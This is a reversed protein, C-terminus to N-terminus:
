QNEELKREKEPIQGTGATLFQPYDRLIELLEQNEGHNKVCIRYFNTDLGRYNGCSRILIGHSLLFPSLCSEEPGAFDHFLLFNVRSDYVHFGMETLGQRLLEREKGVTERTRKLFDERGAWFTAEGAAQAPISVRWPQGMSEMRELLERNSSFGYGLRLGAMAFAKTPAKLVFLNPAKECCALCSNRDPEELFDLFCEDVVAMIGHTRCEWLIEEMTQGDIVNGVPNSPSCLFVMDPETQRLAERYSEASLAFNEEEKLFFFSLETGTRLLAAEYESFTPALLLAKKPRVAQVLLDILEAAGNGFIAQTEPVQYWACVAKRLRRCAVDPYSACHEISDKAAQCVNEPMGLPNVNISFDLRVKRDGYIDGGHADRNQRSRGTIERGAANEAAATKRGEAARGPSKEQGAAQGNEQENEKLEQLLGCSVRYVTEAEGALIQLAGGTLERLLRDRGDMPVIGCGLENCTVIAEPNEKMLRRVFRETREAAEEEGQELLRRIFEHLNVVLQTRFAMEFSDKYGDAATMERGYRGTTKRLLQEAAARKGQYAGGVLLIM